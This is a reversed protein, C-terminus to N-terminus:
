KWEYDKFNFIFTMSVLFIGMAIVSLPLFSKTFAYLFSIMMIISLSSLLLGAKIPIYKKRQFRQYLYSFKRLERIIGYHLFIMMTCILGFILYFITFKSNRVKYKDGKKKIGRASSFVVEKEPLIKIIFSKILKISKETIMSEFTLTYKVYDLDSEKIIEKFGEDKFLNELNSKLQESKEVNVSKVGPLVMLKNKIEVSKGLEDTVFSMQPKQLNFHM